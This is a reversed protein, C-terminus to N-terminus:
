PTHQPPLQVLLQTMLLVPKAMGGAQEDTTAGALKAMLPVPLAEVQAGCVRVMVARM